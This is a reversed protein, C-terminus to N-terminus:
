GSRSGSAPRRAKRRVEYSVACSRSASVTAVIMRSHADTSSLTAGRAESPGARRM